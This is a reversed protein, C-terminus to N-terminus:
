RGRFLYGGEMARQIEELLPAVEAKTQASSESYFASLGTSLVRRQMEPTLVPTAAAKEGSQRFPDGRKDSSERSERLRRMSDNIAQRRKAEPLKEFSELMKQFGAPLTGELFAMKEADTMAEYWQRMADDMRAERREEYNLANLQRALESIAGSRADGDLRGLDTNRLYLRVKEATVRRSQAYYYGGLAVLWVVALAIGAYILPKRRQTVM